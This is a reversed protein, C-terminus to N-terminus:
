GVQPRARFDFYRYDLRYGGDLRETIVDRLRNAFVPEGWAALGMLKGAKEAGGLGIFRAIASYVKGISHPYAISGLRTLRDDVATGWTTCEWEGIGDITLYAASPFPSPFFASAAHALHHNVFRVAPKQSDADDRSGLMSSTRLIRGLLRLDKWWEHFGTPEVLVNSLVVKRWFFTFPSRPFSVLSVDSLRANAAMLCYAIAATPFRGERKIRSFREEEVAAILGGDDSLLCASSDHTYASIGLIM